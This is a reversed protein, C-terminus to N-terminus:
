DVIVLGEYSSHGIAKIMVARPDEKKNENQKKEGDKEVDENMDATEEKVQEEEEDAVDFDGGELFVKLMGQSYGSVIATNPTEMTVPKPAVPDGSEVTEQGGALNWFVLRPVEYGDEEFAKKVISYSTDWQPPVKLTNALDYAENLNADQAADFQMDSFVFVQKVMQDPPLKLDRAIPLICDTFVSVFNTNLSASINNIAAVRDGFTTAEGVHHVKPIESFSIVRDGYPGATVQSVLTSLGIASHVPLTGDPLKAWHMSGSVDCVAISSSLKGAARVRAVLTDWQGNLVKQLVTRKKAELLEKAKKSPGNGRIHPFFSSEMASKVMQGPNLVAGSIRAKGAAVSDIYDSFRAFDKICFLDKYRDMALSPLSEYSISSFNNSSVDREVISLAKRLPSLYKSRYHLRAAKLYADRTRRLNKPADPKAPDFLNYDLPGFPEPPGYLIEAISSVIFTHKDHFGEPSPAWKAALSIRKLAQKTGLMLQELDKALQNAFLRAVTLHLARYFANKAFKDHFQKFRRDNALAKRENAQAKQRLGLVRDQGPTLHVGINNVQSPKLFEKQVAEDSTEALIIHKVEAVWKPNKALPQKNKANLVERPKASFTLSDTVELVVINLLDKWYGHALGDIPAASSEDSTREAAKTSAVAAKRNILPKTLVHLNALVTQPHQTRMWGLCRYFSEKEAKGIHISRANFIIKITDLPSEQWAGELLDRLRPGTIAQELEVFLDLLASKTSRYAIGKNDTFMKNEAISDPPPETPAIDSELDDAVSHTPNDSTASQSSQEVDYETPRSSSADEVAVHVFSSPTESVLTFTDDGKSSALDLNAMKESQGTTDADKADDSLKAKQIPKEDTLPEPAPRKRSQILATIRRFQIADCVQTFCSRIYASFAEDNSRLSPTEPVLVPFKSDLLSTKQIEDKPGDLKAIVQKYSTRIYESLEEDNVETSKRKKFSKREVEAPAHAPSSSENATAPKIPDAM